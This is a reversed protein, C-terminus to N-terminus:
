RARAPQIQGTSNGPPTTEPGSASRPQSACGAASLLIALLGVFLGSRPGQLPLSM